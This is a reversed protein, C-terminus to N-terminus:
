GGLGGVRGRKDLSSRAERLIPVSHKCHTPYCPIYTLNYLIYSYFYGYVMCKSLM